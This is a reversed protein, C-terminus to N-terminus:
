EDESDSDMFSRCDVVMPLAPAAEEKSMRKGTRAAGLAGGGMPCAAGGKAINGTIPCKPRSKQVVLDRFSELRAVTQEASHASELSKVYREQFVDFHYTTIGLGDHVKQIDVSPASGTKLASTLCGIMSDWKRDDQGLFLQSIRGDNKLSERFADLSKPLLSDNMTFSRRGPQRRSPSAAGSSSGSPGSPASPASSPPPPVACSAGTSGSLIDERFAELSRMADSCVSPPHLPWPLMTRLMKDVHVLLSNYRVDTIFLRSHTARLVASSEGTVKMISPICRTAFNPMEAYYKLLPDANCLQLLTTRFWTANDSEAISKMRKSGLYTAVMVDGFHGLQLILQHLQASDAGLSALIQRVNDCFSFVCAHVGQDLMTKMVDSSFVAKAADHLNGQLLHCSFEEMYAYGLSRHARLRVDNEIAETLLAAFQAQTTKLGKFTDGFDVGQCSLLKARYGGTICPRLKEIVRTTELVIPGRLGQMRFSQILTDAFTNFLADSIDLHRHSSALASTDHGQPDALYQELFSALGARIRGMKLPCLLFFSQFESRGPALLWDLATNAAQRVVKAGGIAELLPLDEAEVPIPRAFGRVLVKSNFNETSLRPTLKQGSSSGPNVAPAVEVPGVHLALFGQTAVQVITMRESTDIKFIGEMLKLLDDSVDVADEGALELIRKQMDARALLECRDAIQKHSFDKPNNGGYFLMVNTGSGCMLETLMIGTSWVDMCLGGYGKGKSARLVEPAIYPVTGCRGQLMQGPAAQVALGFDILTITGDPAIMLNSFKLDRHSIHKSHCHMVARIIHGLMRQVESFPLMSICRRHDQQRLRVYTEVSYSGLHEMVICLRTKGHLCEIIKLVNPHNLIGKLIVIEREIQALDGLSWSQSKAIEKVAVHQNPNHESTALYVSGFGGQGIKKTYTYPGVGNAHENLNKDEPPIHPFVTLPANWVMKRMAISMHRHCKKEMAEKMHHTAKLTRDSWAEAVQVTTQLQCAHVPASPCSFLVGDAEAQMTLFAQSQFIDVEEDSFSPEVSSLGVFLVVSCGMSENSNLDKVATYAQEVAESSPLTQLDPLVVLVVCVRYSSLDVERLHGSSVTSLHMVHPLIRTICRIDEADAGSLIFLSDHVIRFNMMGELQNSVSVVAQSERKPAPCSSYYRTNLRPSVTQLPTRPSVSHQQAQAAPVATSINLKAVGAAAAAAHSQRATELVGDEFGTGSDDSDDAAAKDAVRKADSKTADGDRGM